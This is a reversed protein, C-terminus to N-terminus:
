IKNLNQFGDNVLGTHMPIETASKGEETLLDVIYKMKKVREIKTDEFQLVRTSMKVSLWDTKKFHHKTGEERRGKEVMQLLEQLERETDVILVTHDCM